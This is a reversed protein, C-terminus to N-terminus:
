IINKRKFTVVTNEGRRMKASEFGTRELVSRGTSHQFHAVTKTQVINIVSIQKPQLQVTM